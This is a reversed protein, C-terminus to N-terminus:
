LSFQRLETETYEKVKPPALDMFGLDHTELGAESLERVRNRNEENIWHYILGTRVNHESAVRNTMAMKKDRQLMFPLSLTRVAEMFSLDGNANNERLNIRDQRIRDRRVTNVLGHMDKSVLAASSLTKQPFKSAIQIKVERPLDTIRM